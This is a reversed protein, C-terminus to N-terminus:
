TTTVLGGDIVDNAGIVNAEGASALLAVLTAM